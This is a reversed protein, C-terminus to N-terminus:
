FIHGPGRLVASIGDTTVWFTLGDPDLLGKRETKDSAELVMDGVGQIICVVRLDKWLLWSGAIGRPPFAPINFIGEDRKVKQKM